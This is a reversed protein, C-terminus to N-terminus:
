RTPGHLSSKRSRRTRRDHCPSSTVCHDDDISDRLEVPGVGGDPVQVELDALPLADPEQAQVARALAGGQPHEAAQEERRGTPDRDAPVVHLARGVLDALEDAVHRVGWRQVRLHGDLGEEAEGPLEPVHVGRGELLPQRLDDVDRAQLLDPLLGDRGQGVAVLLADADGLGDHVAGGQEDEVLGDVSEVRDLDHGHSLEDAPEPALVGDRSLVCMRLSISCVQSRIRISWRPRM